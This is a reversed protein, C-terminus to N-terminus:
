RERDNPSFNKWWVKIKAGFLSNRASLQQLKLFFFFFFFGNMRRYGTAPNSGVASAPRLLFCMSLIHGGYFSCELFFCPSICVAVKRYLWPRREGGEGPNKDGKGARLQRATGRRHTLSRGLRGVERRQVVAAPVCSDTTSGTRCTHTVPRFLSLSHASRERPYEKKVVAQLCGRRLVHLNPSHNGSGAKSKNMDFHSPLLQFVFVFFSPHKESQNKKNLTEM